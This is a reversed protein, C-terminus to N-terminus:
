TIELQDIAPDQIRLPELRSIIMLTVIWNVIIFLTFAGMNGTVQLLSTNVINFTLHFAVTILLSERTHNYLWSLYFTLPLLLFDLVLYGLGFQDISDQLLWFPLHWIGWCLGLIISSVLATRTSQLAPLAAGRWGIEEGLAAILLFIINVLFLSISAPRTFSVAATGTFMNYVSATIVLLLPYVLTAAAWWKWGVRWIGLRSLMRKVAAWGGSQGTLFIAVVAPMLVGLLRILPSAGELIAFPGIGYHSLVLPIWILWSLTFTLTFFKLPSVDTKFPQPNQAM